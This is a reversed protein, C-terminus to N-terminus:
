RDARYAAQERMSLKIQRPTRHRGKPLEILQDANKGWRRIFEPKSWADFVPRRPADFVRTIRIERDTPTALTLKGATPM